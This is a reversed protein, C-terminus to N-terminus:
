PLTIHGINSLTRCAPLNRGAPVIRLQFCVNIDFKPKSHVTTYGREIAFYPAKSYSQMEISTPIGYGHAPLDQLTPHSCSGASM